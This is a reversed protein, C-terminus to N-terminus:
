DTRASEPNRHYRAPDGDEPLPRGTVQVVYEPDIGLQRLAEPTLKPEIQEKRLYPWLEPNALIRRWAEPSVRAPRPTRPLALYRQVLENMQQREEPSRNM